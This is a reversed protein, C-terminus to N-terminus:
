EEVGRRRRVRDGACKAETTAGDDDDDNTKRRTL